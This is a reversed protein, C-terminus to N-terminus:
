IYTHLIRIDVCGTLENELLIDRCFVYKLMCMYQFMWVAVFTRRAFIRVCFIKFCCVKVTGDRIIRTAQAHNLM